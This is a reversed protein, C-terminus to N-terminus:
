KRKRSSPIVVKGYEVVYAYIDVHGAEQRSNDSLDNWTCSRQGDAILKDEANGGNNPEGFSWYTFDWTEGSVWRWGSKPGSSGPLKFGGLWLSYNPPLADNKYVRARLFNNEQASTITALYGPMGRFSTNRAANNADVWSIPTPLIILTYYHGNAPNRIPTQASASSASLFCTLLGLALFFRPLTLM